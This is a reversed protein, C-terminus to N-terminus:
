LASAIREVSCFLNRIANIHKSTTPKNAMSYLEFAFIGDEDPAIAVLVTAVLVSTVAVLVAGFRNGIPPVVAVDGGVFVEGDRSM